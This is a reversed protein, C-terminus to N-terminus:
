RRVIRFGVTRRASRQGISDVAVLRARYRGRALARGRVRGSFGTSRRGAAASVQLTGVTRYRVCWRSGRVARGPACRRRGGRGVRRGQVRRQLTVRVTAQKSLTYRFASGRAARKRRPPATRGRSGRPVPAFSRHKMSVRSLVLPGADTAARQPPALEVFTVRDSVPVDITGGNIAVPATSLGGDPRLQHIAASAIPSGLTIRVGQDPVALDRRAARNDPANARAGTDYSQREQWLALFFSGSRKQVLTHHVQATAGSLSYRLAGPAFAPGPDSLLNLVSQVARFAPKEAGSNRLLGFNADRRARAADPQSDILEYLYTRGFGRNFYELLLRPMYKGAALESVARHEISPDNVANHYGTETVVIPKAGSPARYRPALDDVNTGYPDGCTPCSGGPYPHWNGVDMASSLDGLAQPTWTPSPGIVAVNQIAPNGKVTGYLARQANVTQTAWPPAGAPIGQLDPENAGEFAEVGGGCWAQLDDLKTWDTVASTNTRISTVLDARIGSAALDRCRVYFFNSASADPYTYANDRIHRVGLAALKPKIISGYGRDYVTGQHHLRVNVGVSDVFSDAPRAPESPVQASAATVTVGSAM